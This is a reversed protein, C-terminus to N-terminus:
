ESKEEPDDDLMNLAEKLKLTGQFHITKLKSYVNLNNSAMLNRSTEDPLNGEIFDNKSVFQM